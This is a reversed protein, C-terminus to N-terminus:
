QTKTKDNILLKYIAGRFIDFREPIHRSLHLSFYIWGAVAAPGGKTQTIDYVTESMSKTRPNTILRYDWLVIVLVVFALAVQGEHPKKM